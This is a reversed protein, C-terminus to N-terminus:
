TRGYEIDDDEVGLVAAALKSLDGAPAGLALADSGAVTPRRETLGVSEIDNLVHLFRDLERNFRIIDDNNREIRVLWFIDNHYMFRDDYRLLDCWERDSAAMEAMAQWYYEHPMEHDFYRQRVITTTRPCKVSLLGTSEVFADPTCGWVGCDIWYGPETIFGTEAEYARIAADELDIGRQMDGTTYRDAVSNTLREALLEVMYTIREATPEGNKKTAMIRWAQSATPKGRRAVYWEPTRQTIM